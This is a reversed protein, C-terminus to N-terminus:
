RSWPTDLRVEDVGDVEVDTRENYFCIRGRVPEAERRADDDYTWAVDPVVGGGVRASWHRASGKYACQTLTASPELLDLRVDRFPLYWRVPLGTEYLAKAKTSGALVTGDLSIRIRRSTAFTDIRHYPDRPHVFLQEDEEFWADAADWPVRVHGEVLRDPRADGQVDERPFSFHPLNRSEHVFKARHSDVITVGDKVARVRRPHNEVYVVHGPPEFNFRGSPQHGFPGSGLTLSM